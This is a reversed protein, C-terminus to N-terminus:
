CALYGRNWPLAEWAIGLLGALVGALASWAPVGLWMENILGTLLASVAVRHAASFMLVDLFRRM